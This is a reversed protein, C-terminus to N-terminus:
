RGLPSTLNLARNAAADARRAAPRHSTGETAIALGAMEREGSLPGTPVLTVTLPPPKSACEIAVTWQPSEIRVFKVVFPDPPKETPM